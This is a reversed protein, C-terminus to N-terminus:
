RIKATYLMFTEEFTSFLMDALTDGDTTVWCSDYVQIIAPTSMGRFDIRIPWMVATIHPNAPAHREDEYYKLIFYKRWLLCLVKANRLSTTHTSNTIPRTTLMSAEPVWPRPNSVPRLRWIKQTFFDVAHRRQLPLLATQGMDCIQPM